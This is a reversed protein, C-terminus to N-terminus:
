ELVMRGTVTGQPTELRYTYIGSDLGTGSFELENPGAREVFRDVLIKRPRGQWDYVTLRVHTPKPINYILTTSNLFPNPMNSVSLNSITEKGDPDTRVKPVLTLNDPNGLSAFLEPLDTHLVYAARLWVTQAPNDGDSNRVRITYYGEEAAVHTFLYGNANYTNSEAVSGDEELVLEVDLEHVGNSQYALIHVTNGAGLYINGAIRWDQADPGPGPLAGGQGLSLAHSDGLDNAMEWEQMTWEPTSSVDTLQFGNPALVCYGGYQDNAPPVNVTVRGAADVLFVAAGNAGSYDHLPTGPAFDTDITVSQWAVGNDNIGILARSNDNGPPDREIVMVDQPLSAGFDVGAEATRVYYDGDSFGLAKRCWILNEMHPRVPLNNMDDLAPDHDYRNSNYGIDFLDEFFIQPSGDMALAIAYATIMRPNNPELHPRLENGGDWGTYNGNGDVYPRFTDHNNVFPVTRGRYSEPQQAGPIGAINYFGNGTAMDYLAGRLNFDFVGSRNDVDDCFVNPDYGGEPVFESVAFLDDGQSNWTSPFGPPTAWDVNHQLNWLLDETVEAPYHKAADFRVGDFGVQRYHWRLWDRMGNRMHFPLQVPNYIANSSQGFADELYCIDPGFMQNYLPYSDFGAPSHPNFNQWNKEFRGARSLYANASEGDNPDTTFCRYRFNKYLNAAPDPLNGLAEPDAGGSGDASGAGTNHNLVIDQIVKIGHAHMVAVLRLLEDKTGLRTRTTGKQYKDGLDYNDFMDYGVSNTGSNGKTAPPIWIADVGLAQLRPALAVLYNAWGEPYNDNEYDWWFAQVIVQPEPQADVHFHFFSLAGIILISLRKRM